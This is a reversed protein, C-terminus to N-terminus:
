CLRSRSAMRVKKKEEKGGRGERKGKNERLADRIGKLEKRKNLSVM